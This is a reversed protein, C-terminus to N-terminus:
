CLGSEEVDDDEIEHCRILRDDDTFDMPTDIRGRTKGTRKRAQTKIWDWFQIITPTDRTNKHGQTTALLHKFQKAVPIASKGFYYFETAILANEGGTDREEHQSDHFAGRVIQWKGKVRHWVNDGCRTISSKQSPKRHAFRADTWYEQYTLVEKVQMAYILHGPKDSCSSATGVIIDGIEANRRITPKCCALTCYRGFPNPAFGSDIAIIYASLKMSQSEILDVLRCPSRILVGDNASM